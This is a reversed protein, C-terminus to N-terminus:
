KYISPSTFRVLTFYERTASGLPDVGTCSIGLLPCLGLESAIVEGDECGIRTVDMETNDNMRRRLGGPPHQGLSNGALIRYDDRIKEM